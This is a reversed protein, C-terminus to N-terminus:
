SIKLLLYQKVINLLNRKIIYDVEEEVCHKCYIKDFLSNIGICGEMDVVLLIRNM